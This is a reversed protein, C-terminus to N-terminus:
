EATNSRDDSRRRLATSHKILETLKSVQLNLSPLFTRKDKLSLKEDPRLEAQSSASGSLSFEPSFTEPETYVDHSLSSNEAAHARFRETILLFTHFGRSMFCVLFFVVFM